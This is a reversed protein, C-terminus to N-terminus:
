RETKLKYGTIITVRGIFPIKITEYTLVYDDLGVVITEIEKVRETISDLDPNDSGVYIELAEIASDLADLEMVLASEDQNVTMECSLLGFSLLILLLISLKKM